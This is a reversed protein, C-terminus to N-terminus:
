IVLQWKEVLQEIVTYCMHLRRRPDEVEILTDNLFANFQHWDIESDAKRHESAHFKVILPSRLDASKTDLGKGWCLALYESEAMTLVQRAVADATDAGAIYLSSLSEQLVTAIEEDSLRAIDFGAKVTVLTQGRKLGSFLGQDIVVKHRKGDLNLFCAMAGGGSQHETGHTHLYSAFVDYPVQVIGQGGNRAVANLIRPVDANPQGFLTSLFGM